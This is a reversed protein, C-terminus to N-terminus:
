ETRPGPTYFGESANLIMQAIEQERRINKQANEEYGKRMADTLPPMRAAVEAGSLNLTATGEAVEQVTQWIRQYEEATFSRDLLINLVKLTFHFAGQVLMAQRVKERDSEEIM